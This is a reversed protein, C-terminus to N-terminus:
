KGILLLAHKESGFCTPTGVKPDSSLRVEAGIEGIRSLVREIDQEHLVLRATALFLKAM